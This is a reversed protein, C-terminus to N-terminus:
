HGWPEAPACEAPDVASPEDKERAGRMQYLVKGVPDVYCGVLGDEDFLPLRGLENGDADYGVLRANEHVAGNISIVGFAGGKLRAPTTRGDGHELTLRRVRTSARGTVMVDGGDIESTSLGLIQVPGPLWNRRGRWGDSATSGTIERGPETIMDCTFYGADTLFLMAADYGHQTTVALDDLTVEQARPVNDADTQTRQDQNWTLCQEAAERLAPSLEAASMALVQRGGDNEGTPWWAAGAVAVAVTTVVAALVGVRRHTQRPEPDHLAALVGVQMRETRGPPLDRETPPQLIDNM